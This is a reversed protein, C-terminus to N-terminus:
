KPLIHVLSVTSFLGSVVKVCGVRVKNSSIPGLSKGDDCVTRPGFIRGDKAAQQKGAVQNKKNIEIELCVFLWDFGFGRNRVTDRMPIPLRVPIHLRGDKTLV